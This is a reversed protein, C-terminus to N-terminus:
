LQGNWGPANENLWVGIVTCLEVGSQKGFGRAVIRKTVDDIADKEPEALNRYTMQAADNFKKGHRTQFYNSM